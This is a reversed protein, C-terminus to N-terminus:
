HSKYKTPHINQGNYGNNYSIVATVDLYPVTADLRYFATSYVNFMHVFNIKNMEKADMLFFVHLSHYVRSLYTFIAETTIMIVYNRSTILTDASVARVIM